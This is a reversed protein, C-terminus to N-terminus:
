FIEWPTNIHEYGLFKSSIKLLLSLTSPYVLNVNVNSIPTTTKPFKIKRIISKPQRKPGYQTQLNDNRANEEETALDTHRVARAIFVATM